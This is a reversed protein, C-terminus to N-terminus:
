GRFVVPPPPCFSGGGVLAFTLILMLSRGYSSLLDRAPCLSSLNRDTWGNPRERGANVVLAARNYRLCWRM